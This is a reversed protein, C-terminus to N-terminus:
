AVPTLVEPGRDTVAVTHEFHAGLSRDKTVATWGDSLVEVEWTGMTVMPEIALVMGAKLRPGRNPPGFNPIPPDEHMDRGIGHGVFDRVVAYGAGEATRQVAHSLDSLRHRPTALAIAQELAERTTDMLRQAIPPVPGVGVTIAADACYGEVKAGADLSVLDGERIVREGPIGHVVEENISVCISAPFGRYGLFIPEAGHEHIFKRAVEDLQKTKMGPAVRDALCKLLQGVIRGAKRMRELEEATKLEIM